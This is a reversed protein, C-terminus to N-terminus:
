PRDGGTGAPGGAERRVTRAHYVAAVVLAVMVADLSHELLHHEFPGFVGAVSLAAVSARAFLAALAGAVLLYSWSRRRMLAALGLGLLLGAGSMAVAVAGVMAVDVGPSGAVHLVNM